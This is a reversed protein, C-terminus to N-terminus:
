VRPHLSASNFLDWRLIGCLSGPWPMFGSWEVALTASYSNLGAGDLKGIGTWIGDLGAWGM